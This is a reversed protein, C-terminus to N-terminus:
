GNTPGRYTAIVRCSASTHYGGDTAGHGNTGYLSSSARAVYERGTQIVVGEANAYGKCGYMNTLTSDHTSMNVESWRNNLYIEARVDWDEANTPFGLDPFSEVYRNNNTVTGFDIKYRYSPKSSTGEFEIVNVSDNRLHKIQGASVTIGTGGSNTVTLDQATANNFVFTHENGNMIINRAATLVTGTDTIKINGYQNEEASLTYNADITINKIVALDQRNNVITGEEVNNLNTANLPPAQDNIWTNRIYEKSM